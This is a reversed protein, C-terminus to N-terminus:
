ASAGLEVPASLQVTKPPECIRGNCAQYRVTVPVLQRGSALGARLRAPVSVSFTRVYYPTVFGFAPEFAVTPKSGQPAGDALAVDNKAISVLLPTPGDKSQKLGYIHWGERVAGRLNIVVRRGHGPVTSPSVTWVVTQQDAPSGIQQGPLQAAIPGQMLLGILGFGARHVHRGRRLCRYIRLEIV